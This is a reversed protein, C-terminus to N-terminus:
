ILTLTLVKSRKVYVTKIVHPRFVHDIMVKKHKTFSTTPNVQYFQKTLNLLLDHNTM